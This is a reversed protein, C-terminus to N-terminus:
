EECPRLHERVGQLSPRLHGTSHLINYSILEDDLLECLLESQVRCVTFFQQTLRSPNEAVALPKAAVRSLVSGWLDLSVRWFESAEPFIYTTRTSRWPQSM